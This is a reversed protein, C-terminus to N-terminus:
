GCNCSLARDRLQPYDNGIEGNIGGGRGCSYVTELGTLISQFWSM